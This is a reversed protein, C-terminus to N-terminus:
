QEVTQRSTLGSLSWAVLTEMAACVAITLGIPIKVTIQLPFHGFLPGM